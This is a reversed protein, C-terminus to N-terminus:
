ASAGARDRRVRPAGAPRPQVVARRARAPEPQMALVTAAAVRRRQGFSLHHPARDAHDAMGVEALAADCAPTSSPAACASTRPGSRWTTGSRRCSSSTTPTRSCSAWGAASRARPQGQDVTLGDVAVSGRRPRPHRQPAAGANDQGAGNPGLMAVREGAQSRLDVGSLAVHRRPLRLGAGRRRPAPTSMAADLRLMASPASSPQWAAVLWDALGGGAADSSEPVTGTTGAPSCRWTCGSAGSSPACSCRARRHPSPGPRGSGGRTTAGRSERAVRMRRLEDGVVDLYRVMFGPSRCSSRPVAPARARRDARARPDDRRAGRHRRRRPDGQHRHEVDGLHGGGVALRRAGRGAARARRVPPLVAFALFPLEVLLRAALHGLPIHAVLAAGAILPTRRAFAWFAERPTAVVAFVFLVTALVKAEPALPAGALARPRLVSPHARREHRSGSATASAPAVCCWSSHRVWPSACRWVSSAPLAPRSARTTSAGCATTPRAAGDAMAHGTGTDIFGQDTAVRELGDPSSSALPERLLRAVGRRAPRAAVFVWLTRSM